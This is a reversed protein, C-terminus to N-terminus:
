VKEWDKGDISVEPAEEGEDMFAKIQDRVGGGGGGGEQRRRQFEAFREQARRGSEFFEAM